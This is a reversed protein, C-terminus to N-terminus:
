NKNKRNNPDSMGGHKKITEAEAIDAAEYDDAGSERAEKLAALYTKERNEGRPM